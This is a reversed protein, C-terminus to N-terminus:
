VKPLHDDFGITMRITFPVVANERMAPTFRVEGSSEVAVDILVSGTIGRARLDAPYHRAIAALLDEKREPRPFRSVGMMAEPSDSRIM